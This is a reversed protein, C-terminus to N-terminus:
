RVRPFNTNFNAIWEAGLITCPFPTDNTVEVTLNDTKTLTPFRYEGYDLPIVGTGDNGTSATFTMTQPGEQLIETSVTFTHTKAYKLLGFLNQYRGAKVTSRGYNPTDERMDVKGFQYRMTYPHGFFFGAVTHGHHGNYKFSSSSVWELDLVDGAATLVIPTFGTSPYDFDPPLVILTHQDGPLTVYTVTMAGAAVQEDIDLVCDLLPETITSFDDTGFKVEMKQLAYGSGIKTVMYLVNDFFALSQISDFGDFVFKSWASQLVQNGNIFYKWVYLTDPTSPNRLFFVEETSNGIIDSVGSPIYRPIQTAVDTAQYAGVTVNEMVQQYEWFSSYAGRTSVFYINKGLPLPSVGMDAEYATVFQISATKPTLLPEGSVVFQARDAFVLLRENHPVAYKLKAVSTHSAQIDIPDSDLLQRVTTRWFNGYVGAESMVVSSETLLGLRNKHFFVDTVPTDVFTPAPNSDNDGVLRDLWTFAEVSFYPTGASVSPPVTGTAIRRVLVLPMNELTYKISPGLTERWEGEGFDGGVKAEFKVYFDDEFTEASGAIKFVIDDRCRPPLEDFNDVTKFYSKMATDGVSDKTTISVIDATSCTVEIVSGSVGASFGSVGASAAATVLKNALEGAISDTKISAYEGPAAADVLQTLSGSGGTAPVFTPTFSLGAIDAEIDAYALILSPAGATVLDDMSDGAGAANISAAALQACNVESSGVAWTRTYGLASFSWTGSTGRNGIVLRWKEKSPLSANTGDWTSVTATVTALAFTVTATYNTKYNGQRIYIYAKRADQAASTSSALTVTKATNTLFTYDNVTTWKYDSSAGTLYNNVVTSNPYYVIEANGDLDWVRITDSPVASDDVVAALYRESTDRNIWHYSANSFDLTVPSPTLAKLWKTPFRKKLGEVITGYANEQVKCQSELRLADPQQSVGGVLNSQAKSILM